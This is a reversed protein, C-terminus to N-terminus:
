LLAYRFAYGSGTSRVIACLTTSTMQQTINRYAKRATCTGLVINSTLISAISPSTWQTPVARVLQLVRSDDALKVCVMLTREVYENRGYLCMMSVYWSPLPSVFSMEEQLWFVYAESGRNETSRETTRIPALGVGIAVNYMEIAVSPIARVQRVSNSKWNTPKAM